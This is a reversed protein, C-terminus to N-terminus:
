KQMFYFLVYRREPEERGEAGGGREVFPVVVFVVVFVVFIIERYM